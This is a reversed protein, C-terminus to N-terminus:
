LAMQEATASAEQGRKEATNKATASKLPGLQPPNGLGGDRSANNEDERM